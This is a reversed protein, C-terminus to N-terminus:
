EGVKFIGDSYKLKNANDKSITICPRVSRYTTVKSPRLPNEYVLIRDEQGVSTFYANIKSDFNIDFLSPIGVKATVKDDKTESIKEKYAGTYWTNDIIMNKYSLSDLYTENLYKMLKSDKYTNNELDFDLQKELVKEKMLKINDKMDYVIWTDEGLLVRSGVKLIDKKGVEYPKDITGDGTTYTTTGKLRVMPRIEYFTGVESQSVNTGNTHWIKDTGYDSLWFIEEDSVLYSKSNHVSNLFNAVDLLKVYSNTDQSNCTISTLDSIKDTCFSTKNLMDKDLKDILDNNLYNYIDSKTFESIESSWPLLTIYDDLIIDISNDANIRVIRWLMNNFSLYNNNVNGKYIYNGSSSILGDEDDTAFESKGVIDKALLVSGDGSDIKPNYIRYYKIFRSGYYIVCGLLFIFSVLCFLGQIAKKKVRKKSRMSKKGENNKESNVIKKKPELYVEEKKIEKKKDDFIDLIEIDEDM